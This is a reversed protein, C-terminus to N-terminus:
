KVTEKEKMTHLVGHIIAIIKKREVIFVISSVVIFGYRIEMYKYIVNMILATGVVLSSLALATKPSLITEPIGRHRCISKAFYNHLLSYIIYCIMTTYAAAVYGFIPIFILNLLINLSAAAVSSFLVYGKKEFYFEVDVYIHYLFMFFAGAAVPPVAYMGDQYEPSGLIAIAEPGCFMLLIIVAAMIYMIITTVRQIQLYRRRELNQYFWPTYSNNIAVTFINMLLGINYAISYIAVESNGIMKSIMIRDSQSLVQGALYHPLLPVAFLM